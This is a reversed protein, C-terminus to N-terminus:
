IGELQISCYSGSPSSFLIDFDSYFGLLMIQEKFATELVYASAIDLCEALGDRVQTERGARMVPKASMNGVFRRPQVFYNGFQDREKTSFSTIGISTSNYEPEGIKLSKGIVLKGIGTDGGAADVEVTITAPTAPPLDFFAVDRTRLRDDFFYSYWNLEPPDGALAATKSYIEGGNYFMKITISSGHANFIAVSDVKQDIGFTSILNGGLAMTQKDAGVKIDLMRWPNSAGIDLWMQPNQPPINGTNDQILSRYVRHYQGLVIVDDGFNYTASSSYTPADNELATTSILSPSQSSQVDAARTVRVAETPIYSTAIKTTSRELQAGYMYFDGNTSAVGVSDSFGYALRSLTIQCRFWGNALETIRGNSGVVSFEGPTVRFGCYNNGLRLLVQCDASAAKIFISFVLTSGAPLSIAVEQLVGLFATSYGASPSDFRAAELQGTPALYFTNITPPSYPDKVWLANNFSNSYKLYNTASPEIILGFSALTAPDYGLRPEDNAAWVLNGSANFYSADSAREFTFPNFSLPRIVIM